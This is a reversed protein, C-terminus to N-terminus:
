SGTVTVASSDVSKVDKVRAAAARVRALADQSPVTGSLVVVGNQTAVRVNAGSNSDAAIESQAAKAIASDSAPASDGATQADSAAAPAPPSAAPAPTAAVTADAAAGTAPAPTPSANTQDGTPAAPAPPPPTDAAVRNASDSDNASAAAALANTRAAHHSAKHPTNAPTPAVDNTIPAQSSAVAPAPPVPAPATTAAVADPAPAAPAATNAAPLTRPTVHVVPPLQTQQALQANMLFLTLGVGVAVTMLGGVVIKHYLRDETWHYMRQDM